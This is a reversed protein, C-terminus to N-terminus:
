LLPHRRRRGTGGPRARHQRSTLRYLRLGQAPLFFRM